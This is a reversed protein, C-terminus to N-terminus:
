LRLIHFWNFRVHELKLFSTGKEGTEEPDYPTFKADKINVVRRDKAAVPKM